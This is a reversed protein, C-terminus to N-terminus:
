EQSPEIRVLRGGSGGAIIADNEPHTALAYAWGNIAPLTDIVQVQDADIIRVNGDACSALIRSDDLWALNLPESALRVYRVMRGITPQWFRITRDAAASAVMPLGTSNPRHALTQVTGTHQNMNRVITGSNLDWVRLSQDAGASVLQHSAPLFCLSNVSRSHGKLSRAVGASAVDWILIERDISASALQQDGVWCVDRVSDSHGDLTAVTKCDPWSVVEIIGSESPYGGAIALKDGQPSFALAHLNPADIDITRRQRLDPWSLVHVGAQDTTVVSKGDPSFVATTIPPGNEAFASVATGHLMMLLPLFHWNSFRRNM